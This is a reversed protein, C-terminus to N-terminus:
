RSRFISPMILLQVGPCFCGKKFLETLAKPICINEKLFETLAFWILPSSVLFVLPINLLFRVRKPHELSQPVSYSHELNVEISFLFPRCPIKEVTLTTCTQIRFPSFQMSSICNFGTFYHIHMGSNLLQTYPKNPFTGLHMHSSLFINQM